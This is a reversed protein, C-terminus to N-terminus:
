PGVLFRESYLGLLPTISVNCKGSRVTLCKLERARRHIAYSSSLLIILWRIWVLFPFYSLGQDFSSLIVVCIIVGFDISHM